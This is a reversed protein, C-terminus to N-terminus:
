SLINCLHTAVGVVTESDTFPLYKLCMYDEWDLSSQDQILRAEALKMVLLAQKVTLWNQVATVLSSATNNFTVRPGWLLVQLMAMIDTMQPGTESQLLSTLHLLGRRFISLTPERPGEQPGLCFQILAGMQCKISTLPQPALLASQPTVLVCPSGYKRWLEQVWGRQGDGELVDGSNYRERSPWVLLIERPRLEAAAARNSYLHHSAMVVQLLLVCVQRDYDQCERHQVSCSDQVFDELTAHPLDREITVCHGRQLLSKVTLTTSPCYSAKETSGGDSPNPARCDSEASSSLDQMTTTENERNISPQFYTIVDQVNAHLPENNRASPAPKTEKCVRLGLVRGPFKPSQLSYYTKDGIMKPKSGEYLLFDEPEYPDSDREKGQLIRRDEISQAMSRLFFQQCHQIRGSVVSQDEFNDFISALHEDPTDFSLQSLTPLSAPSRKAPKFHETDEYIFTDPIPAMMYIPNDLNQPRRQLPSLPSLSCPAPPDIGPLSLTRTLRKKPVPPPTGDSFFRMQHKFPDYRHHIPCQAAHCDTPESFVNSYGFSHHQLGAPSFVSDSEMSSRRHQKVPLTPPKDKEISGSASAM